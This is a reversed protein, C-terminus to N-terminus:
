VVKGVIYEVKNLSLENKLATWLNKLIKAGMFTITKWSSVEKIVAYEKSIKLIIRYEDLRDLTDIDLRSM